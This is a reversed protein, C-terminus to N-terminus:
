RSNAWADTILRFDDLSAPRGDIQTGVVHERFLAHLRVVAGSANRFGHPTGPPVFIVAGPGVLRTEDGLFAEAEGEDIILVEEGTHRHLPIGEGDALHEFNLVIDKVYNGDARVPDMVPWTRSLPKAPDPFPRYDPRDIITM